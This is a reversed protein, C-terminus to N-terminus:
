RRLEGGLFCRAIHARSLPYMKGLSESLHVFKPPEAGRLRLIIFIVM